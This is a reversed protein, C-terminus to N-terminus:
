DDTGGSAGYLRAQMGLYAERISATEGLKSRGDGLSGYAAEIHRGLRENDLESEGAEVYAGLVRRLFSRMEEGEDELGDKKVRDAREERTLPPLVFLIYSLVDFLDSDPADVLAKVEDLVEGA